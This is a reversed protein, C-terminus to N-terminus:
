LTITFNNKEFINNIEEKENETFAMTLQLMQLLHQESSETSLITQLAGYAVMNVESPNSLIRVFAQSTMLALRLGAWNCDNVDIQILKPEDGQYYIYEIGNCIQSTVTEKEEITLERKPFNVGGRNEIEIKIM